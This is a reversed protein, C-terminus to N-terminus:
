LLIPERCHSVTRTGSTMHSILWLLDRHSVESHGDM